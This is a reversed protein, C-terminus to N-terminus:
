RLAAIQSDIAALEDEGFYFAYADRLLPAYQFEYGATQVLMHYADNGVRADAILSQMLLEAEARSYPLFDYHEGPAIQGSQVAIALEEATEIGPIDYATTLPDIALGNRGVIAANEPHLIGLREVNRIAKDRENRTSSSDSDIFTAFDLSGSYAASMMSFASVEHIPRGPEMIPDLNTRTLYDLNGSPNSTGERLGAAVYVFRMVNWFQSAEGVFDFNVDGIILDALAATDFPSLGYDGLEAILTARAVDPNDYQALDVYFRTPLHAIPTANNRAIYNLYWFASDETMTYPQNGLGYGRGQLQPLNEDNFPILAIMASSIDGSAAYGPALSAGYRKDNVTGFLQGLLGPFLPQNAAPSPDDGRNYFPHIWGLGKHWKEEVFVQSFVMAALAQDSMNTLAPNNLALAPDLFLDQANGRWNLYIQIQEPTLIADFFDGAIDQDLISRSPDIQVGEGVFVCRGDGYAQWGIPCQNQSGLLRIYDSRTLENDRALLFRFADEPNPFVRLAMNVLWLSNRLMSVVQIAEPNVLLDLGQGVPQLYDNRNRTNPNTPTDWDPSPTNAARGPRLQAGKISPVPIGGTPRQANNPLGRGGSGSNPTLNVVVRQGAPTPPAKPSPPPTVPRPRTSPRIPNVARGENEDIMRRRIPM